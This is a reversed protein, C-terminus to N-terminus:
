QFKIDQFGAAVELWLLLMLQQPLQSAQCVAVCNFIIISKSVASGM